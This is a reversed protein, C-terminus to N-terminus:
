RRIYLSHKRIYAEVEPALLASVSRGDAIATRIESSSVPLEPSGAFYVTQSLDLQLNKGLKELNDQLEVKNTGRNIIIFRCMRILKKYEHWTHFELFSDGGMLFFLEDQAGLDQVFYGVTEVTFSVTGKMLEWSSILFNPYGQLALALMAFRHYPDTIDPRQKHPPIYAPIFHIRDLSFELAAAEVPVVHGLHPPDFTGGM